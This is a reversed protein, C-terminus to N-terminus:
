SPKRPPRSRPGSCHASPQTPCCRSTWRRAQPKTRTARSGAELNATAFALFLDGSSHEGAGGVRAIGLGARQAIRELQHPLVPADTAVIVIISGAEAQAFPSPIEDTDIALGVPVGDVTLRERHGYNAQVLAGVTWGGDAETLRRSATGTGGKFEHCVM